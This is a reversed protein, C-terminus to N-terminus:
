EIEVTALGKESGGGRCEDGDYRGFEGEGSWILAVLWWYRWVKLKLNNVTKCNTTNKIQPFFSLYLSDHNM